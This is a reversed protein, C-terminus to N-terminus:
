SKFFSRKLENDNDSLDIGEFSITQYRDDYDICLEHATDEQIEYDNHSRAEDIMEAKSQLFFDEATKFDTFIRTMYESTYTTRYQVMFHSYEEIAKPKEVKPPFITEYAISFDLYFMTKDPNPSVVKYRHESVFDVITFNNLDIPVNTPFTDPLYDCVKIEGYINSKPCLWTFKQRNKSSSAYVVIDNCM